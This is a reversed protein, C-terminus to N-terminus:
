TATPGTTSPRSRATPSRVSAPRCPFRLTVTQADADARVRATTEVGDAHATAREVKLEAAHLVVEQRKREVGVAIDVEGRFRGAELDPELRIEYERPRVDTPLRFRSPRETKPM